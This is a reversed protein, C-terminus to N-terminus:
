CDEADSWLHGRSLSGQGPSSVLLDIEVYAWGSLSTHVKMTEILKRAQEASMAANEEFISQSFIWM